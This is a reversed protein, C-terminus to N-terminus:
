GISAPRRQQGSSALEYAAAVSTDHRGGHDQMGAAYSADNFRSARFPVAHAGAMGLGVAAARQWGDITTPLANAYETLLERVAFLTSDPKPDLVLWVIGGRPIDDFEMSAFALRLRDAGAATLADTAKLLERHAELGASTTHQSLAAPAETILREFEAVADAFETQLRQIHHTTEALAVRLATREAADCL